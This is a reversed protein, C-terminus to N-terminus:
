WGTSEDAPLETYAYTADGGNRAAREMGAAAAMLVDVVSAGSRADAVGISASLDWLESDLRLKCNAVQSQLRLAIALATEEDAGPLLVAYVGQDYDCRQDMDRTAAELLRGLVRRLFNLTEPPRRRALEDVQDVRMLLVSVIPGGRSWEALRRKVNAVFISRGCLSPEGEHPLDDQAAAPETSDVGLSAATPYEPADNARAEEDRKRHALSIPFCQQGDNYYAANGGAQDAEKVAMTARVIAQNPREGQQLQVVGVSATLQLRRGGESFKATSVLERVREAMPMAQSLTSGSLTMALCDGGFRSATDQGRSARKLLMAAQRLVTDGGTYGYKKNVDGFNDLDMLLLSCPTPRKGNSATITALQEELARRNPLSTLLDAHSLVAQMCVKQASQELRVEADDASQGLEDVADLIEGIAHRVETSSNTTRSELGASVHRLKQGCGDLENSMEVALAELSSLVREYAHKQRDLALSTLQLVGSAGSGGRVQVAHADLDGKLELFQHEALLNAEVISAAADAADGGKLSANIETLCESHQLVCSQVSEVAAHLGQVAEEAFSRTKEAERLREDM